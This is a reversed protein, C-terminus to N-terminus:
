GEWIARAASRATAVPDLRVLYALGFGEEWRPNQSEYWALIERSRASRPERRRELPQTRMRMIGRARDVCDGEDCHEEILRREWSAVDPSALSVIRSTLRGFGMM